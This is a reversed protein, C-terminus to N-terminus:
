KRNELFINCVDNTNTNENSYTYEDVCTNNKETNIDEDIGRIPSYYVDDPTQTIKYKNTCSFLCLTIAIFPLIKHYM